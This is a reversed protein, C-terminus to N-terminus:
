ILDTKMDKSDKEIMYLILKLLDSVKDYNLSLKNNEFDIMDALKEGELKYDFGKINFKFNLKLYENSEQLAKQINEDKAYIKPREYFSEDLEINNSRTKVAGVVENKLKNYNVKNGEVEEKIKFEKGDFGLSADKPEVVKNMFQSNKLIEDLKNEDYNVNYDFEFDEKTLFSM